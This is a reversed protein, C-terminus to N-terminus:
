RIAAPVAVGRQMRARTAADVVPGRLRAARTRLAAIRTDFNVVSAPNIQTGTQNAAVLLPALPQLTPFDANRAAADITGDIEPFDACAGLGAIAILVILRM